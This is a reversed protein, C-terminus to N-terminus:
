PIYTNTFLRKARVKNVQSIINLVAYVNGISVVMNETCQELKRKESLNKSTTSTLPPLHTLNKKLILINLLSKRVDNPIVEPM